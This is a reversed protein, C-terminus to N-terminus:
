ADVIQLKIQCSLKVSQKINQRQEKFRKASTNCTFVRIATAARDNSM